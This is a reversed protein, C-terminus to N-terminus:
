GNGYDNVLDIAEALLCYLIHLCIAYIDFLTWVLSSTPNYWETM